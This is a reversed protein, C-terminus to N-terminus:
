HTMSVVHHFRTYQIKLPCTANKESLRVIEFVVCEFVRVRVRVRM